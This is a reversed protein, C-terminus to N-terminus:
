QRGLLKLGVDLLRRNYDKSSFRSEAYERTEKISQPTKKSCNNVIRVLGDVDKPSVYEGFPFDACTPIGSVNFGCIKTGCSLAELCTNPQTEAFSTCVFLDALSYYTALLKQDNVFGLPIYNQPCESKDALFGVHVFSVSEDNEFRRALDLFYKCGKRESPYIAVTLIIRNEFPIGLDERLKRSERPYFLNEQDIAEDIPYLQKQSLLASKKALSITYPVSVFVLRENDYVKRKEEFLLSSNDFFWSAPYEKLRPCKICKSEFKRCDYSFTCSGTLSFEDWMIQVCAINEKRIFRYLQYINIYYGHLNGLYIIDPEIRRIYRIVRLTSIFSFCGVLGTLREFLITLKRTIFSKVKLEGDLGESKGDAYACYTKHGIEKIYDLFNKTLKGTSGINYKTNVFLVKMILYKILGM